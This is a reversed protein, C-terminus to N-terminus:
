IINPEYDDNSDIAVIKGYLYVVQRIEGDEYLEQFFTTFYELPIVDVVEESLRSKYVIIGQDCVLPPYPPYTTTLFDNREM